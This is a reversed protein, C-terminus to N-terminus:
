ETYIWRRLHYQCWQMSEDKFHGCSRWRQRRSEYAKHTSERAELSAQTHFQVEFLLGTSPERWRTNIGKYQDDTWTNRLAVLVLGRDGLREMDRWVGAVYGYRLTFRLQEFSVLRCGREEAEVSRLHPVIAPEGIERIFICARDVEKSQAANILVSSDRWGPSNSSLCSSQLVELHTVKHHVANVLFCCRALFAAMFTAAIPLARNPHVRSRGDKVKHPRM